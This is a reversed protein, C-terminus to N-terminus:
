PKGKKHLENLRKANGTGLRHDCPQCYISRGMQEYTTVAQGCIPCIGIVLRKLFEAAARQVAEDIIDEDIPESM